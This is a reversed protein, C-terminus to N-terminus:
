SKKGNILISRLGQRKPSIANPRLIGTIGGGMYGARGGTAGRWDQSGRIGPQEFLQRWKEKQQIEDIYWQPLEGRPELDGVDRHYEAYAQLQDADLPTKSIEVPKPLSFDIEMGGRPKYRDPKVDMRKIGSGVVSKARDSARLETVASMYSEHEPSGVEMAKNDRTLTAYNTEMEKLQKELLPIQEKALAQGRYTTDAKLREIQNAKKDYATILDQAQGYVAAGPNIKALRKHFEESGTGPVFAGMIWNDQVAEKWPKGKAVDWGVSGVEYAIDLGIGAPGFISALASKSGAKAVVKKANKVIQEAAKGKIKGNAVDNTMRLFNKQKVEAPCSGSFGIRGGGAASQKKGCWFNNLLKGIQKGETFEKITVAGKPMEITYGAREAAKVIDLGQAKLQKLRTDTFYKTADPDQLRPLDVGHQKELRIAMDNIRKSESSLVNKYNKTGKAKEINARATSLKSQFGAMTKTNLNGEMVDVFQSFEAAKSKASGTVGAIENVNFGFANKGMKPDYVPINNKKLINKAQSKFKEFTGQKNGLKADITQMSIQYLGDRYPNGFASKEITKFMRNSTVKNRKIDQLQPNKFDQGGYWQALRSTVKGATSDTINFKKAVDKIDPVNGKSFFKSGYAKDFDIMLDAIRNNLRGTKDALRNFSKLDRKSANKFYFTDGIKVPQLLKDIEKTLLTGSKKAQKVRFYDEKSIPLNEFVDTSISYNNPIKSKTEAALDFLKSKQTKIAGTTLPDGSRNTFKNKNFYDLLEQNTKDPYKTVIEVFKDGTLVKDGQYGPRSGDVTNRVLQGESYMNRPEPDVSRPEKNKIRNIYDIMNVM